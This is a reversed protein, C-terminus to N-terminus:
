KLTSIKPGFFHSEHSFRPNHRMQEWGPRWRQAARRRVNSVSADGAAAARILTSGRGAIVQFVHWNSSCYM